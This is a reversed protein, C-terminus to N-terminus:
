IKIEFDSANYFHQNSIQPTTFNEVGFRVRQLLTSELDSLILFKKNLIM